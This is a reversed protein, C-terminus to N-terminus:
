QVRINMLANVLARWRERSQPVDIRDMGRCRDQLDMKINEKWRRSPKGVPRHGDPNGLLVRCAGSKEGMHEM